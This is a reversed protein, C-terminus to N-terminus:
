APKATLAPLSRSRYAALSCLLLFSMYLFPSLAGPTTRPTGSNDRQQELQNVTTFGKIVGETFGKTSGQQSDKQSDKPSENQSDKQTKHM